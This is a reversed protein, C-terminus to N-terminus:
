RLTRLYGVVRDLERESLGFDPMLCGPKIKQPGPYIREGGSGKQPGGIWRRLDEGDLNNPIMGAALTQRRM